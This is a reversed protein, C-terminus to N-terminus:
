RPVLSTPGLQRPRRSPRLLARAAVASARDGRVTRSLERLLALGYFATGGVPGHRRRYLRVRNLIQMAYLDSNWGSGRGLHHVVAAPEYVTPWGADAARLCFDTEESYMFFSEDWGGLAEHCERPVLLAAGTAWDVRRRAGYAEQEYVIEAFAARRTFELGLARRLSPARRLSLSTTGEEDVIRPAVIARERESTRVLARLAGPSCTTDPNLVLVPGLGTSSEVGRNVGAAYGRNPARVVTCDGRGEILAVTDDTSGNDVVVVETRVDQVDPALSDLAATVVAASNYTVVVVTVEGTM